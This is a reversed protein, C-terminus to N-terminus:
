QSSVSSRQEETKRCKACLSKVIHRTEQQVRTAAGCDECTLKSMATTMAVVGTVAESGGTYFVQLAGFKEKIHVFKVPIAGKKELKKIEMCMVSILHYWGNGCSIGQAIPYNQDDKLAFLSPFRRFLEKEFFINMVFLPM